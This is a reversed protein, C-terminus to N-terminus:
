NELPSKATEKEQSSIVGKFTYVLSGQDTVQLQGMGKECLKDLLKQCEDVSLDTKSAVEIPTVRGGKSAIVNLVKRETEEAGKRKRKRRLIHTLYFGGACTLAFFVLLGWMVNGKDEVGKVIDNIAVVVFFLSFLGIGAGLIMGILYM